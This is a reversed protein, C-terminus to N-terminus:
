LSRYTDPDAKLILLNDMREVLGTIRVPEAIRNLIRENVSQGETDVLLLYTALGATDRVLLAPPIGGSICRIACAKHTKTNGPNMVGFYCKSDIIEGIFTHKGLGEVDTSVSAGEIEELSGPQIEVMVQTDRYILSGQLSVRKGDLGEVLDDAGFKGPAVLSYRSFSSADGDQTPRQVLLTPYPSTNVIGELTRTKGFEFTVPYLRKQNFALAAACVLAVGTIILVSLRIHRAIRAPANKIYGVYFEETPDSM